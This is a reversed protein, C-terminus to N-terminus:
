HNVRPVELPLPRPYLDLPQLNMKALTAIVQQMRPDNESEFSGITVMSSTRTHLIYPDFELKKLVRATEQAQMGCANLTDNGKGLGIKELFTGSTQAGAVPQVMTAGRYEKVLLTWNKRSKLLSNPENANLQRLMPDYKPPPPVNSPITTNRTVFSRTFPNVMERRIEVGKGPVPEYISIIDATAKGEELKIEPPKLAKVKDLAARAQDITQFGGIMVACEEPPQKTKRRRGEVAPVKASENKGTKGAGGSSHHLIYAPMRDRTRLTAVVQQAMAMSDPGSYSACFILWAGSQPNLQYSNKADPEDLPPLANALPVLGLMLLELFVALLISRYGAM